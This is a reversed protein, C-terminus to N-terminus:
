KLEAAEVMYRISSGRPDYIKKEVIIILNKGSEDVFVREITYDLVGKRKLQPTGILQTAIVVGNADIKELNIYFSSETKEGSGTKHIIRQLSYTVDDKSTIKEYDKFRIIEGADKSENARIYLTKDISARKKAYREIFAKNKDYLEQFVTMSTKSATQVSAKTSFVGNKVFNNSPIDVVYIEAWAQFSKDEIGYQAFSYKTGDESFGLDKFEAVDGAFLFFATCLICISALFFKKAIKDQITNM